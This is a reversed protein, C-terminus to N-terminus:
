SVPCVPSCFCLSSRVRKQCERSKPDADEKEERSRDEQQDSSNRRRYPVVNRQQVNVEVIPSVCVVIRGDAKPCESVADKSGTWMLIGNALMPNIDEVHLLEDCQCSKLSEGSQHEPRRM